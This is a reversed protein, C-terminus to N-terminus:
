RTLNRAWNRSRAKMRLSPRAKKRSKLLSRQLILYWSSYVGAPDEKYYEIISREKATAPKPEGAAPLEGAAVEAPKKKLRLMGPQGPVPEFDEELKKRFKAETEAEVNARRKQGRAYGEKFSEKAKKGSHAAGM